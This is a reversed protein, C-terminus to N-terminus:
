RNNNNNNNNNNNSSSGGSSGSSSSSTYHNFVKFLNNSLIIGDIKSDICKSQITIFNTDNESLMLLLNQSGGRVIGNPNKELFTYIQDLDSLSLEYYNTLDICRKKRILEEYTEPEKNM